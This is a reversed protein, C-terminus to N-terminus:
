VQILDVLSKHRSALSVTNQGPIHATSSEALNNSAPRPSTDNESEETHTSLSVQSLHLSGNGSDDVSTSRWNNGFVGMHRMLRQNEQSILPPPLRPNLNINSSYYAVYAPDSRLEEESMCNEIASSLNALSSNPNSNQQMLINKIAALSGEMSPPASGSRNPIIDAQGGNVRQMKSLLGLQEAAMNKSPSGFTVADKSSHWKRDGSSEVMRVPSETTM